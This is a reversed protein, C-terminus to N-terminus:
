KRLIHQKGRFKAFNAESFTYTVRATFIFYGDKSNPNGRTRLGSRTGKYALDRAIPDSFSNPDQYGAGSVDDLYDTFTWRYGAEAMINWNADLNIRVGGGYPVMPAIPSYRKGETQLPRLNYWSGNLEGQPNYYVLGIGLFLYPDFKSRRRFHKEYPFLSIMASTYLEINNSRFSLNRVDYFDKAYLRFYNLETKINVREYFYPLRYLAGIGFQPRLKMCEMGECLDGYYTAFGIGGYITLLEYHKVRKFGKVHRSRTRNASGYRQQAYSGACFFLLLGLVLLLKKRSNM